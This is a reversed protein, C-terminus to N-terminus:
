LEGNIRKPGKGSGDVLASLAAVCEQLNNITQM